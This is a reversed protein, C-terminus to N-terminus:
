RMGKFVVTDIMNKFFKTLRKRNKSLVQNFYPKVKEDTIESDKRLMRELDGELFIRDSPPLLDSVLKCRELKDPCSM